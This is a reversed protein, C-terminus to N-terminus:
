VREKVDSADIQGTVLAAFLAAAILDATTGPNRRHGDSRLWFDFDNLQRYYGDSDPDGAALVEAARDSAEQAIAHGCKRAILSDPFTALSKVHAAVISDLLGLGKAVRDLIAPLIVQFVEAFNNAYQRAVLDRDQAAQMAGLLDAPADQQVDHEEVHSLGTPQALRIAAYTEASDFATLNTLLAAVNTRLEDASGPKAAAALPALLLISGLNTNTGVARRTAAVAQHVTAGVGVTAAQQMLPGIAVASIVMDLYTMDEFDAGRHVNGPKHATAELVCALTANQGITCQNTHGQFLPRTEKETMANDM